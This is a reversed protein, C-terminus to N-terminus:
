RGQIQTTPSPRGPCLSPGAETESPPSRLTSTMTTTPGPLPCEDAEDTDIDEGDVDQPEAEEEPEVEPEEPTILAPPAVRSRPIREACAEALRDKPMKECSGAAAPGCSETLAALMAKKTIAGFFEIGGEWHERMDLNAARAIRDVSRLREPDAYKGHRGDILAATCPRSCAPLIPMMWPWFGHSAIAKRRRVVILDAVGAYPSVMERTNYDFHQAPEQIDTSARLQVAHADPHSEALIPLLADLLVANALHQNRRM